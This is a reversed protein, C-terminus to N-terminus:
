LVQNKRIKYISAVTIIRSSLRFISCIFKESTLRFWASNSNKTFAFDIFRVANQWTIYVYVMIIRVYFTYSVVFSVACQAQM